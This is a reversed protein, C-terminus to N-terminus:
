CEVETGLYSTCIATGYTPSSTNGPVSPITAQSMLYFTIAVTLSILVFLVLPLPGDDRMVGRNARQGPQVRVPYSAAGFTELVRAVARGTARVCVARTGTLSAAGHSRGEMIQLM